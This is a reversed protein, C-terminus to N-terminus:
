MVVTIALAIGPYRRNYLYYGGDYDIYVDDSDYWNEAWSEPWPDVLLFSFGGYSFRPYGMYIVPRTRIRFWHERGFSVRFREQPIFYGGYGGRQVWTRHEIAWHRARNEHWNGRGEWAGQRLWGRQQQWAIAEQETRHPQPRAPEFRRAREQSPRVQRVQGARREPQREHQVQEARQERERDRRIEQGRQEPHAQRPEEARQRREPRDRRGGREQQGSGKGQPENQRDHDRQAYAPVFTGFLLVVIAISTGRVLRM